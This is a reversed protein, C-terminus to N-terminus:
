LNYTSLRIKEGIETQIKNEIFLLEHEAANQVIGQNSQDLFLFRIKLIVTKSNLHRKFIVRYPM